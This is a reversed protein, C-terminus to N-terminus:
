YSKISVLEMNKHDVTGSLSASFDTMKAMRPARTETLIVGCGRIIM